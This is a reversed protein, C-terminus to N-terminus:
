HVVHGRQKGHHGGGLIDGDSRAGGRAEDAEMAAGLWAVKREGAM